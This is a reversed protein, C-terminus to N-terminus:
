HASVGEIAVMALRMAPTIESGVDQTHLSIVSSGVLVCYMVGIAQIEGVGGSWQVRAAPMGALSASAVEGLKFNDRRRAVGDIFESLYHKAGEARQAVTIGDLASGMDVVSIQLVTGGDEGPRAEGVGDDRRWGEARENSRVKLGWRFRLRCRGLTRRFRWDGDAACSSVSRRWPRPLVGHDTGTNLPGVSNAPSARASIGHTLRLSKLMPAARPRARLRERLAEGWWDGAPHALM